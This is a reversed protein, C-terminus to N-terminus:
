SWCFQVCDLAFISKWTYYQDFILVTFILMSAKEGLNSLIIGAIINEVPFYSKALIKNRSSCDTKFKVHAFNLCCFKIDKIFKIIISICPLLKWLTKRFVVAAHFISRVIVFKSFERVFIMIYIKEHLQISFLLLLFFVTFIFNRSLITYGFPNTFYVSPQFM